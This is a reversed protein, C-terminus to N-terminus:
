ACWTKTICFWYSVYIGKQQWFNLM